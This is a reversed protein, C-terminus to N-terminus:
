FHATVIGDDDLWYVDGAANFMALRPNAGTPVRLDQVGADARLQWRADLQGPAIQTAAMQTWALAVGNNAMSTIFATGPDQTVGSANNSHRM